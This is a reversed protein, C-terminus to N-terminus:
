PPPSVIIGLFLDPLRIKTNGRRERDYPNGSAIVSTGGSSRLADQRGCRNRCLASHGGPDGGDLERPRRRGAVYVPESLQDDHPDREGLGNHYVRGAAGRVDLQQDARVRRPGLVRLLVIIAVQDEVVVHLRCVSIQVSHANRGVGHVESSSRDLRDVCAGVGIQRVDPDRGNRALLHVTPRPRGLYRKSAVRRAVAGVSGVVGHSHM